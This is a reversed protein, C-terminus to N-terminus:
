RPANGRMSSSELKTSFPLDLINCVEARRLIRRGTQMPHLSGTIANYRDRATTATAPNSALQSDDSAIVGVMIRKFHIKPPKRTLKIRGLDAM